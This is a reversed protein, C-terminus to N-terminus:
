NVLVPAGTGPTRRFVCDGGAACEPERAGMMGMTVDGERQFTFEFTVDNGTESTWGDEFLTYEVADDSGAVTARLTGCELRHIVGEVCSGDSYRIIM